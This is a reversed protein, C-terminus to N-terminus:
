FHYAMEATISRPSVYHTGSFTSLFNYLAVKNSLNVITLSASLTRKEGNKRHLLNDIGVSLDFLNRPAIRAPNHDDNQTNPATLKLLSSTFQSVLCSSPLAHTPTARVGACAFGAQAEQDATLPIGNPDVMNVAPQGGITTTQQTCDNSPLTGYCPAAGAVQGSDFRWNFGVYPGRKGLQYQAHTTQNFREDHDIRFPTHGSGPPVPVTGLGSTQPTFFRAAVSSFVVQATFNHVPPIDLRGDFGPVKSSAWGIPFTIPTAGLVAFDFANHTYKWAYDASLVAYRTIQQQFGVHFDNRFGPRNPSVPCSDPSILAALVPFHCGESAIILNENFPSELTRAYSARLVTGTRKINYSLALRPQVQNASTLGNYQDFRLGLNGTWAGVTIADQAYAAFEKVDTHGHFAYLQGGQTLDYPLLIARQACAATPTGTSTNCGLNAILTPAVIGLQFNENLFTQQYSVGAKVNHIGHTYTLDSRLGTNALSRQQGITEQQLDPAGLDAFPNKSPYYHFNDRRFFYNTTLVTSPNIVRTYSPAFNITQIQSRQDSPGIPLGNPGIPVGASNTAWQTAYQSDYSNPTQFWSRTYGLNLKVLDAPTMQYDVRDFFNEENGKDHIARLEPPDLFRGTNMGNASIFNGLRQSGVALNFGVNSSGFSGYSANLEGHPQPNGLGSRTTAVIVLSTKGGFEAPPAGPIVELSQVSDLPIQNSFVKSQQDTIPQGDVSFSNSAHDGMSHFMGNSDASIGPSALTVLSSVSSSGQLPIKSFLDRDIDTHDVPDTEILDGSSARVDVTTTAAGAQLTTDHTVPVTSQVDVSATAPALTPATVTIRYTNFPLNAITYVGLGDSIVTRTLGSVANSLTVTANPVLAGSADTITGTVTGANGASQVRQPAASHAQPTSAPPQPAIQAAAIAGPLSVSGAFGGATLVVIFLKSIGRRSSTHM